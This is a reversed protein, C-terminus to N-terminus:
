WLFSDSRLLSHIVGLNNGQFVGTMGDQGTMFGSGPVSNQVSPSSTRLLYYQAHHTHHLRNEATMQSFIAPRSPISDAINQMLPVM